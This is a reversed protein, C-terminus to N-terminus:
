NGTQPNYLEASFLTRDYRNEGGAVLVSGDQLVSVTLQKRAYIMNGTSEWIRTLLNV